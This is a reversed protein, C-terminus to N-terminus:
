IEASDKGTDNSQLHRGLLREREPEGVEVPDREDPDIGV